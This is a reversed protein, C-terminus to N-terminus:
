DHGAAMWEYQKRLGRELLRFQLSGPFKLLAKRDFEVKGASIKKVARKWAARDLDKLVEAERSVVAPIRALAEVVKPNFERGLWPLLELRIRNRLFRRSNNTEDERFSIKKERLFALLDKKSFGLLPRVLFLNGMKVRPRIGLLGRLGTGQLIRMLVTEAQDELTHATALKARRFRKAARQFFEYREKRAAEEPSLRGEGLRKKGEGM